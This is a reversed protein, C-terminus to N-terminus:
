EQESSSSGSFRKTYYMRIFRESLTFIIAVAITFYSSFLTFELQWYLISGVLINIIGNLLHFINVLLPETEEGRFIPGYIIRCTSIGCLILGYVCTVATVFIAFYYIFSEM